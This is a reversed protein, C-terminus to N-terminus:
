GARQDPDWRGDEIEDRVNVVDQVNAHPCTEPALLTLAEGRRGLEALVRALGAWSGAGAGLDIARRFMREAEEIRAEVADFFYGLSEYSEPDNPDASRAREYSDRAATLSHSASGEDLLQILDGRRNWLRCSQPHEALAQEVLQVGIPTPWKRPGITRTQEDIAKFWEAETPM